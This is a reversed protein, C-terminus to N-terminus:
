YRLGLRQPFEEEDEEAGFQMFYAVVKKHASMMRLHAAVLVAVAVAFHVASAELWEELSLTILVFPPFLGFYQLLVFALNTNSPPQGATFPISKVNLLFADTLLVCLGVAVLLQVVVAHASRLAPPAVAHTMAVTGLTLVFAWLLVWTRTAASEEMGPRGQIVRFIWHVRMEAPSLFAARLGAVTWFAVIPVAARLGVSSLGFSFHGSGPVLLMASGAILALGLGGYMALYVRHRHKRLLTLSIFHYIGRRRASRLLTAHLIWRIPLSVWSRTDRADSGEVVHRMKRRYALPYTLVAAAIAIVTAVCGTRALGTFVPLTASGHLLSEYIGLFWFPPFYRVATEGSALLTELYHSLVPFLLLVTLLLAIWLGQLFPSIMRFIREGLMGLLAGQFALLASAAFVGAMSVALLHASFHRVLSPLDAAAPFFVTGLANIGLMFIGLFLFIAASRALFLRRREIPLTTLVFADVLDPFFMDWEFITVMGVAVFSYMVYFYRDSVQSWFPRGGGPFHYPPFLYMAVVLGPLAIAYGIQITRARAEGDSSVMENNFFRDLFHRVLLEFQSKEEHQVEGMRAQVELSLVADKPASFVRVLSLM